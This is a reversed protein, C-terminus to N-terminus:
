GIAPIALWPQSQESTALAQLAAAPTLPRYFLFGQMEDMGLEHLKQQQQRTEVGEAVLTFDLSRTMNAIAKVLKEGPGDDVVQWVFARDLKVVDLPYKCLASLSSYGTGFDDLALGVGLAKIREMTLRSEEPQKMLLSETIEIVLQAPAIGTMQLTDHISDVLSPTAFHRASINVHVVLPPQEPRRTRSCDAIFSCAARLMHEGLVTIIESSEAIPIFTAPSITGLQPHQWRALAEFGLIQGTRANVMPQFHPALQGTYIARPLDMRIRMAAEAERQLTRNFLQICGAGIEQARTAAYNAARLVEDAQDYTHDGVLVGMSVSIDTDMHDLQLTTTLQRRLRLALRLPRFAGSIRPLLVAFQEGGPHALIAQHTLPALKGVLNRLLEDSLAQGFTTNVSKFQDVTILLLAFGGQREAQLEKLRAQLRERLLYRNALGTLPDYYALRNIKQEQQKRLGIDRLYLHYAPQGERLVKMAVVECPKRFGRRCIFEWEFLPDASDMRQLLAEVAGSQAVAHLRALPQGILERHNSYGFLRLTAPNVDLIRQGAVILMPNPSQAFLARADRTLNALSRNFNVKSRVLRDILSGLLAVEDHGPIQLPADYNQLVLRRLGQRLLNLRQGIHHRLLWFALSSFVGLSVLLTGLFAFLLSKGQQLMVRPEQLEIVLAPAGTIDTLLQYGWIKDSHTSLYPRELAAGTAARLAAPLQADDARRLATQHGVIAQYRGPFFTSIRQGWLLWGGVPSRHSSDRIPQLSILLPEGALVLLGGLGPEPQRALAPLQRGLVGDAALAAQVDAALPRVQGGASQYSAGEVLRGDLSLFAMFELENTAFSEPVLTRARFESDGRTVLRYADDWNAWDLTNRELRQRSLDLMTRVGALSERMNQQEIQGLSRYLTLGALLLATLISGVLTALMIVRARRALSMNAHWISIM